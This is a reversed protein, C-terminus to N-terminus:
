INCECQRKDCSADLIIRCLPQCYQIINAYLTYVFTILIYIHVSWQFDSWLNCGCQTCIQRMKIEKPNCVIFTIISMYIRQSMGFVQINYNTQSWAFMIQFELSMVTQRTYKILLLGQQINDIVKGIAQKNQGLLIILGDQVEPDWSSILNNVVQISLQFPSGGQSAIRVFDIECTVTAFQGTLHNDHALVFMTTLNKVIGCHCVLAVICVQEKTHFLFLKYRLGIKARGHTFIQDITAQYVVTGYVTIWGTHLHTRGHTYSRSFILNCRLSIESVITLRNVSHYQIIVM